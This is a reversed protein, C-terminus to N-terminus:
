CPFPSLRFTLGLFTCDSQRYIVVSDFDVQQIQPSLTRRADGFFYDKIAAERAHQVFTEDRVVVGDPKDLTVVNIPEGLSTKETAFRKSLEAHLQSSGLVVIINVACTLLCMRSSTNARMGSLEDVAHALLELAVGDGEGVAVGDAMVGSAKVQEDESLRGSVTGALKGVLERWFETDEEVGARGYYFVLPLKVPVPSPGSIPTSGWGDVAEPDLISAFVSASLTGPLSLMGERPNLNVVLPQHSRRTAYSALTRVLTTKGVSAPGTVLVRPGERGEKAAQM